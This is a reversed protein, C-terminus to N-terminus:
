RTLVELADDRFRPRALERDGALHAIVQQAAANEEDSLLYARLSERKLSYTRLDESARELVDALREALWQGHGDERAVVLVAALHRVCLLSSTEDRPRSLLGDVARRVAEREAEALALCAPCRDPGPMFTALVDELAHEDHEGERPSRLREALAHALPPYAIAIGPASAIEAYQWTHMPCFGGSQAHETRREERRALEWQAHAMYRYPVEAIQECIVCRSTQQPATIAQGTLPKEGPDDPAPPEWAAVEVRFEGLSTGILDLAALERDSGPQRSRALVRDAARRTESAAQDAVDEVWRRAARLLAVRLKECFTGIADDVSAQLPGLPPSELRSGARARLRSPARLDLDLQVSEIGLLPLDVPSWTADSAARPLTVGFTEAGLREVAQEMSHLETLQDAALSILLGRAELLRQRLWDETLRPAADQLYGAIEALRSRASRGGRPDPWREEVESRLRALLEEAWGRSRDSLIRAFEDEVKGLLREGVRREGAILEAVGTELRRAQQGGAQAEKSADARGLELDFRQRAV